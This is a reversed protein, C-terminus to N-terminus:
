KNNNNDKSILGELIGKYGEAMSHFSADSRAHIVGLGKLADYIPIAAAIPIAMLPNEQTAERAFARHEAAGLKDQQEQTTAYDRASYLEAHPLQGLQDSPMGMLKKLNDGIDM